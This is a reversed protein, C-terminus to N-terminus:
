VRLFFSVVALPSMLKPRHFSQIALHEFFLSRGPKDSSVSYTLTIESARAFSSFHHTKLAYIGLSSHEFPRPFSFSHVDAFPGSAFCLVYPGCRRCLIRTRWLVVAQDMLSAIFIRSALAATSLYHSLNFCSGAQSKLFALVLDSTHNLLRLLVPSKNMECGVFFDVHLTRGRQQILYKRTTGLSFCFNIVM